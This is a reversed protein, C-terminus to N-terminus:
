ALRLSQSAVRRGGPALTWPTLAQAAEVCLFRAEGGVDLDDLARAKASGPNWVVTDAFGASEVHLARSGDRLVLPPAGRYIRDLEGTVRLPGPEAPADLGRTSDWYPVGGLGELQAEGLQRVALYTHFAAGVALAEGGLNEVELSLTLARPALAIRVTLEFPAAFRVGEPPAGLQLRAEATTGERVSVLEFRSTRAFGHRPLEVHPPRLEFRPFIVPVGGRIARRGDRHSRSSLFLQEDADAPRWSLAHAGFPSFRLADGRTNELRLEDLGAM